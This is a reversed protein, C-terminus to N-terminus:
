IADHSGEDPSGNEPNSLSQDVTAKFICSGAKFIMGEGGAPIREDDGAFLWTGNTSPKAGGDGDKL